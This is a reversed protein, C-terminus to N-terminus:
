CREFGARLAIPAIQAHQVTAVIAGATIDAEQCLKALILTNANKKVALQDQAFANLVIVGTVEAFCKGHVPLSM